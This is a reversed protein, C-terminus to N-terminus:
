LPPRSPADEKSQLQRANARLQEAFEADRERWYDSVELLWAVKALQTEYARDQFGM